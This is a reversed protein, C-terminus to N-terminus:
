MSRFKTTQVSKLTVKGKLADSVELRPELNEGDLVIKLEDSKVADIV